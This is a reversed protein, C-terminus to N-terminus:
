KFYHILLLETHSPPVSYSLDQFTNETALFRLIVSLRDQAPIAQRMVTDKKEIVPAVAYLLEELVLQEMRVYNQFSNPDEIFLM